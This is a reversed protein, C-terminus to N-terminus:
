ERVGAARMVALWRCDPAHGGSPERDLRGSKGCAPCRYRCEDGAWELSLLLRAMAPGVEAWDVDKPNTM